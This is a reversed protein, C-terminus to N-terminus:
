WRHTAHNIIIFDRCQHYYRRSIIKVVKREDSDSLYIVIYKPITSLRKVKSFEKMLHLIFTISKSKNHIKNSFFFFLDVKTKLKYYLM